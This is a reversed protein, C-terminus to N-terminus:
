RDPHNSSICHHSVGPKVELDTSMKSQTWCADRKQGSQEHIGTSTLKSKLPLFAQSPQGSAAMTNLSSPKKQHSICANALQNISGESLRTANCIERIHLNAFVPLAKSM